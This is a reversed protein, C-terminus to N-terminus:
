REKRYNLYAYIPITVPWVFSVILVPIWALIALVVCGLMRVGVSVPLSQKTTWTRIKDMARNLWHKDDGEIRSLSLQTEVVTWAVAACVYALPYNM